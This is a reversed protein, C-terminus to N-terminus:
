IITWLIFTTMRRTYVSSSMMVTHSKETTRKLIIHIIKKNTLLGMKKHKKNDKLVNKFIILGIKTHYNTDVKCILM